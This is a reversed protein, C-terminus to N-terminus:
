EYIHLQSALRLDAEQDIIIQNDYSKKDLCVIRM